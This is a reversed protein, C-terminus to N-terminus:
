AEDDTVFSFLKRVKFDPPDPVIVKVVPHFTLNVDLGIIVVPHSNLFVIKLNLYFFQFVTVIM